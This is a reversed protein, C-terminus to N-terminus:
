LKLDRIGAGENWPAWEVRTFSEVPIKEMSNKQLSLDTICTTCGILHFDFSFQQQIM